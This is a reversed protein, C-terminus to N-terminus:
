SKELEDCKKSYITDIILYICSVKQLDSDFFSIHDVMHIDSLNIEEGDDNNKKLAKDIADKEMNRTELENAVRREIMALKAESLRENQLRLDEYELTYLQNKKELDEAQKRLQQLFTIYKGKEENLKKKLAKQSSQITVQTKHEILKFEAARQLLSNARDKEKKYIEMADKMIWEGIAAVKENQKMLFIKDTRFEAKKTRRQNKSNEIQWKMDEQIETESVLAIRIKDYKEVYEILLEQADKVLKEKDIEKQKLDDASLRTSGKEQMLLISRKRSAELEKKFSELIEEEGKQIVEINRNKFEHMFTSLKEMSIKMQSDLVM